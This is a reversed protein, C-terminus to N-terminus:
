CLRLLDRLRKAEADMGQQQLQDASSLIAIADQMVYLGRQGERSPCRSTSLPAELQVSSVGYLGQMRKFTDSEETAEPPDLNMLWQWTRGNITLHAFNETSSTM